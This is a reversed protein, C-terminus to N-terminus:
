IELDMQLKLSLRHQMQFHHIQALLCGVCLASALSCYEDGKKPHTGLTYLFIEIDQQSDIYKLM